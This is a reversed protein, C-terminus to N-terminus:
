WLSQCTHFDFHWSGLRAVTQAERLRAECARLEEESRRLADGARQREMVRGLQTGITTLVDLFPHTPEMRAYSFFALVAVVERGLLVPFAFASALEVAAAREHAPVDEEGEAVDSIWVPGGAALVRTALAAGPHGSLDEATEPSAQHDGADAVQWRLEPTVHGSAAAVPVWLRGTTCGIHACIQRIVVEAAETLTDAENAAVAVRQLLLLHALRDQLAATPFDRRRQAPQPSEAGYLAANGGGVAKATNLAVGAKGMVAEAGDGPESLAVGASATLAFEHGSATIPLRLIDLMRKAVARAGEETGEKLVIAYEDGGSRALSDAPRLMAALRRAVDILIQDGTWGGFAENVREFGDLDLRVVAVGRQGGSASLAADVRHSLAERSLLGTLPDSFAQRLLAHGVDDDDERGPNASAPQFATAERHACEFERQLEEPRLVEARVLGWAPLNLHGVADTWRSVVDFIGEVPGVAITAVQLVYRDACHLVGGESGPDLAQHLREVASGDIAGHGADRTAEVLVVWRELM